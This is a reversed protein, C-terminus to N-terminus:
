GGSGSARRTDARDALGERSDGSGSARAIATTRGIRMGRVREATDERGRGKSDERDALEKSGWRKQRNRM